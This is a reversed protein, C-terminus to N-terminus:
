GHTGGASLTGSVVFAAALALCIVSGWVRRGKTQVLARGQEVMAIETDLLRLRTYTESETLYGDRLRRVELVPYGRPLFALAALVAALVAAVLGIKFLVTNTDAVGATAGLGVVVGSFGLVVGAKTDLSEAHDSVTQRESVVQDLLLELSPM